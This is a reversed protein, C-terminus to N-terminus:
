KRERAFRIACGVPPTEATGVSSKNLAAAIADEVYHKQVSAEKTNDDFAGMYMVKREKNLVFFEPTRTAGFEKAIQQTEDFLYPYVLGQEKARDKMASLLDDKVKNVNIAVVAVKSDSAQYKKALQNIRGEYDKAYPCSNCTFIVVLVDRDKWEQSAHDNGDVGPLANWSPAQDGISLKENYKGALCFSSALMCGVLLGWAGNRRMFRQMDWHRDNYYSSEINWDM